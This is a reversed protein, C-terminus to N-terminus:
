RWRACTSSSIRVMRRFAPPLPDFEVVDIKVRDSEVTGDMLAKVHEHKGLATRLVLPDAM